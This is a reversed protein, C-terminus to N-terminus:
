VAGLVGLLFIPGTRTNGGNAGRLRCSGSLRVRTMFMMPIRGNIWAM